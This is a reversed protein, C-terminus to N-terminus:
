NSVLVVLIFKYVQLPILLEWRQFSSTEKYVARLLTRFSEVTYFLPVYLLFGPLLSQGFLTRLYPGGFWALLGTLVISVIRIVVATGFFHERSIEDKAGAM